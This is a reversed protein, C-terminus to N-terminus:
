RITIQLTQLTIGVIILAVRELVQGVIIPLLVATMVSFM